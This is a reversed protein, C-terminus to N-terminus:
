HKHEHNSYFTIIKYNVYKNLEKVAELFPEPGVLIIITEKTNYSNCIKEFELKLNKKANFIHQLNYNITTYLQYDFKCKEETESIMIRKENNNFCINEINEIDKKKKNNLQSYINMRIQNIVTVGSGAYM